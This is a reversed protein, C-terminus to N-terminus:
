SLQTKSALFEAKKKKIEVFLPLFGSPHIIEEFFHILSSDSKATMTGSSKRIRPAIVESKGNKNRFNILNESAPNKM